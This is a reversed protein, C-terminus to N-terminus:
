ASDEPSSPAVPDAPGPGDTPEATGDSVPQPSDPTDTEPATEPAPEDSQGGTTPDEAGHDVQEPELLDPAAASAAKVVLPQDRHETGDPLPTVLDGAPALPPEVPAPLVRGLAKALAQLAPTARGFRDLLAASGWSSSDHVQGLGYVVLQDVWRRAQKIARPWLLAAKAPTVKYPGSVLYSFETARLRTPLGAKRLARKFAGLSGLGMWRGVGSKETPASLPDSFFQYPHVATFDARVRRHCRALRQIYEFSGAPSFEGFGITTGPFERRIMAATRTFLRAYTCAPVGNLEPENGISVTRVAGRWARMVGRIDGATTTRKILIAAQVQLGRSRYDQVLSAHPSDPTAVIRVTRAGLQDAITTVVAPDAGQDHVGLTFAAAVGAGPVLTLLWAVLLALALRNM